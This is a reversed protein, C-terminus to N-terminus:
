DKYRVLGLEWNDRLKKGYKEIFEIAKENKKEEPESQIYTLIIKLQIKMYLEEM